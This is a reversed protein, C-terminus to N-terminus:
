VKAPKPPAKMNVTAYFIGVALGAILIAPLYSSFDSGGGGGSDSSPQPSPPAGGGEGSPQTGDGSPPTFPANTATVDLVGFLPIPQGAAKGLAIQVDGDPLTRIGEAYYTDIQGAPAEPWKGDPKPSVPNWVKAYDLGGFSIIDPLTEAGTEPTPMSLRYAHNKQAKFVWVSRADSYSIAVPQPDNVGALMSRSIWRVQGM